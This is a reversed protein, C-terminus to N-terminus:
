AAKRDTEADEPTAGLLKIVDKNKLGAADLDAQLRAIAALVDVKAAQVADVVAQAQAISGTAAEADAQNRAGHLRTAHDMMWRVAFELNKCYALTTDYETGAAKSSAGHRKVLVVNWSYWDPKLRYGVIENPVLGLGSM